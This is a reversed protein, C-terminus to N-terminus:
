HQVAAAAFVSEETWNDEALAMHWAARWTQYNAFSASPQHVKGLEVGKRLMDEWSSTHKAAM